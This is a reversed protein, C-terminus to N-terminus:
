PAAPPPTASPAAAAARSPPPPTAPPRPAAQPPHWRVTVRANGPQATVNTPANPAALSFLEATATTADSDDRGGLVLVQQTPLLTATHLNRPTAMAPQATAQGAGGPAFSLTEATNVSETDTTGGAILVSGNGMLTASARYRAQTLTPGPTWSSDAPNFLYTDNLPIYPAFTGQRGGAILVRGDPLLTATHEARTPAAAPMPVATWSGDAERIWATRTTGLGNDRGGVVLVRGGPLLTATHLARGQPLSPATAWANAVPDYIEVTSLGDQGAGGWGGVVLVHGNPLLTATHHSRRLQMPGTPALAGTAPAAAPTYLTGADALQLLTAHRGGALLVRGDTLLTATHGYRPLPLDPGNRWTNTAPTYLRTSVPFGGGGADTEGGAVLVEGTALATATHQARSEATIAPASTWGAQASTAAAALGLHLACTALWRGLHTPLARPRPASPTPRPGSTPLPHM